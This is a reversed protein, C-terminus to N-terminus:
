GNEGCGAKKEPGDEALLAGNLSHGGHRALQGHVDIGDGKEPVAAVHRPRGQGIEAPHRQVIARDADGDMRAGVLAMDAAGVDGVDGVQQAGVIRAALEVDLAIRVGAEEGQAFGLPRLLHRQHRVVGGLGGGIM